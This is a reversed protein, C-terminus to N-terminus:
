TLLITGCVHASKMPVETVM